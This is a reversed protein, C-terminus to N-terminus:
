ALSYMFTTVITTTASALTSARLVLVAVAGAGAGIGGVVSVPSASISGMLEGRAGTFPSGPDLPLSITAAVEDSSAFKVGTFTATVHCLNGARMFLGYSAEPPAAGWSGLQSWAPTYVGESSDKAVQSGDAKLGVVQSAANDVDM